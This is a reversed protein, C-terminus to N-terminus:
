RHPFRTSHSGSLRRLVSHVCRSLLIAPLSRTKTFQRKGVARLRAFMPWRPPAGPPFSQPVRRARQHPRRPRPPTRRPRGIRDRVCIRNHHVRPHGRCARPASLAHKAPSHHASTGIATLIESRPSCRRGRAYSGRPCPCPVSPVSREVISRPRFAHEAPPRWVGGPLRDDRTDRFDQGRRTAELEAPVSNWSGYDRSCGSWRM